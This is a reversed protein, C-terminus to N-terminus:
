KVILMGKMTDFESIVGSSFRYEGPKPATFSVKNSEGPPMKVEISLDPLTFTHYSRGHNVLTLEVVQGPQVTITSPTFTLNDKGEVAIRVTENACAALLVVVLVFPTTTFLCKFSPMRYLEKVQDTSM